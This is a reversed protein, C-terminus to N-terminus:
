KTNSVLLANIYWDVILNIGQFNSFNVLLVKDDELHWRPRCQKSKDLFKTIMM